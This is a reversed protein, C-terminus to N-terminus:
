RRLKTSVIDVFRVFSNINPRQLPEAMKRCLRWSTSGQPKLIGPDKEEQRLMELHSRCAM